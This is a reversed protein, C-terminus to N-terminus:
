DIRWEKIVGKVVFFRQEKVSGNSSVYTANIEGEDVRLLIRQKNQDVSNRVTFLHADSRLLDNKDFTKSFNNGLMITGGVLSDGVVLLATREDLAVSQTVAQSGCSSLLLATTLAMLSIIIKRSSM